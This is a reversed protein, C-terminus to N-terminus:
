EYAPKKVFADVNQVFERSDKDRGTHMAVGQGLCTNQNKERLNQHAYRSGSCCIKSLNQHVTLARAGCIKGVGGDLESMNPSVCIDASASM